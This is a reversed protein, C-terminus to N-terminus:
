FFKSVNRNFPRIYSLQMPYRRLCFVYWLSLRVIETAKQTFSGDDNEDIQLCLMKTRKRGSEGMVFFQIQVFKGRNIQVRKKRTNEGSINLWGWHCGNCKGRQVFVNKEKSTEPNEAHSSDLWDYNRSGNENKRM